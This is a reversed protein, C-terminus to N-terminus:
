SAPPFIKFALPLLSADFEAHEFALLRDIMQEARRILAAVGKGDKEVWGRPRGAWSYHHYRGRTKIVQLLWGFEKEPLPARSLSKLREVKAKSRPQTKFYAEVDAETAGDRQMGISILVNIWHEIWTAYLILSALPVDDDAQERAKRRFYPLADIVLLTSSNFERQVHECFRRRVLDVDGDPPRFAGKRAEKMYLARLEEREASNLADPGDTICRSALQAVKM